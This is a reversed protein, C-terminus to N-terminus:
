VERKNGRESTNKNKWEKLKNHNAPNKFYEPVVTILHQALRNLQHDPIKIARVQGM